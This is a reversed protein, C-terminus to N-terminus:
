LFVWVHWIQYWRWIIGLGVNVDEASDACLAVQGSSTSVRSKFSAASWSARINQAYIRCATWPDRYFLSCCVYDWDELITVVCRRFIVSWHRQYWDAGLNHFVYDTGLYHFVQVLVLDQEICLMTEYLFTWALRLQQQCYCGFLAMKSSKTLANSLIARHRRKSFSWLIQM